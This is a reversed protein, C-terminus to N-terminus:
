EDRDTYRPLVLPINSEVSQSDIEIKQANFRQFLVHDRAQLDSLDNRRNIALGIIIERALELLSRCASATSGVQLSTSCAVAALESFSSLMYEQDRRPLCHWGPVRPLM